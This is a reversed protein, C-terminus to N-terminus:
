DSVAHVIEQEVVDEHKRRVLDKAGFFIVVFAVVLLLVWNMYTEYSDPVGILAGISNGMTHAVIVGLLNGRTNNFIWTYLITALIIQVIFSWFNDTRNPDGPPIFWNPLHCLGWFAGLILSSVLANWRAQLRPLVYARWGFEEIIVIPLGSLFTSPFYMWPQGIFSFIPYSANGELLRALLNIVLFVFPWILASILLWRISLSSRWLSGVLAKVGSKGENIATLVLALTLPATNIVVLFIGLGFGIRFPWKLVGLIFPMFALIPLVSAIFFFIALNRAEFARAKYGVPQTNM